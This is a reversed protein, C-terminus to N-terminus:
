GSARNRKQSRPPLANSRRPVWRPNDPGNRRSVRTEGADGTLCKGGLVVLNILNECGTVLRCRTSEVARSTYLSSVRHLLVFHNFQLLCHTEHQDNVRPIIWTIVPKARHFFGRSRIIKMRHPPALPRLIPSTSPM